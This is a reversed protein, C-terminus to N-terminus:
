QNLPFNTHDYWGRAFDAHSKSWVAALSYFWGPWERGTAFSPCTLTENVVCTHSEHNCSPEVQFYTTLASGNLITNPLPPCFPVGFIEPFFYWIGCKNVMKSRAPEGEAIVRAM